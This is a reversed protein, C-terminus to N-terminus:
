RGCEREKKDTENYFEKKSELFMYVTRKIVRKILYEIPEYWYSGFIFDIEDKRQSALDRKDVKVAFFDIKTNRVYM